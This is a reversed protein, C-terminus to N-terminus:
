RDSLDSPIHRSPQEFRLDHNIFQLITNPKQIFLPDFGLQFITNIVAAFSATNEHPPWM